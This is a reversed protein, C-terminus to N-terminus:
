KKKEFWTQETESERLCFPELVEVRMLLQPNSAILTQSFFMPNHIHFQWGSNHNQKNQEIENEKRKYM